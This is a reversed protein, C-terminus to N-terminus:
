LHSWIWAAWCFDVPGAWSLCTWSTETTSLAVNSQPNESKQKDSPDEQALQAYWPHCRRPSHTSTSPYLKLLADSQHSSPTPTINTHHSMAAHLQAHPPQSPQSLALRLRVRSSLRFMSGAVDETQDWSHTDHKIRSGFPRMVEHM